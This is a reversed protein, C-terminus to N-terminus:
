LFEKQLPSLTSPQALSPIKEKSLGIEVEREFDGVSFPINTLDLQELLMLNVHSTTIQTGDELQIEHM